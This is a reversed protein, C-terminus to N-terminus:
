QYTVILKPGRGGSDESSHFEFQDLSIDYMNPILYNGLVFEFGNNQYSGAVWNRM